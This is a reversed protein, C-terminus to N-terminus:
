LLKWFRRGWCQFDPSQINFTERLWKGLSWQRKLRLCHTKAEHNMHLKLWFKFSFVVAINAVWLSPFRYVSTFVKVLNFPHNKLETGQLVRYNMFLDLIFIYAKVLSIFLVLGFDCSAMWDDKGAIGMM